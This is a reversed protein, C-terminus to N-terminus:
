SDPALVELRDRARELTARDEILYTGVARAAEVLADATGPDVAGDLAEIRTRHDEVLGLVRRADDDPREELYRRVDRRYDGVAATAALGRVASMSDPVEDISLRDGSDAGDLLALFYSTEPDDIRVSRALETGAHRLETAAVFTEDLPQLEGAHIFGSERVFAAAAESAARAVAELPEEGLAARAEGLDLEVSGATHQRRQDLGVSHLSGCAPCAPSGTEYYSWRTECEKCERMGRIKM